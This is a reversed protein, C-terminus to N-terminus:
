RKVFRFIYHSEMSNITGNYIGSKLQKINLQIYNSNLKQYDEEYVLRGFGDFLKVNFQHNKMEPVLINIYDSAPNPYIDIESTSIQSFEESFSMKKSDFLLEIESINQTNPSLSLIGSFTSYIGAKESKLRYNGFPLNKFYFQGQFDSLTYDLIKSGDSTLLFITINSIGGDCFGNQQDNFWSQCYLQRSFSNGPANLVYGSISGIGQPIVTDVRNFKIDVDYIDSNIDMVYASNWYTKEAYYTPILGLDNITDPIANIYYKGARLKKFVFEGDPKPHTLSVANVGKIDARYAIVASAVVDQFDIINGYLQFYPEISVNITDEEIACPSYIRLYLSFSANASDNVGHFYVPNELSSNNFTGDGSTFWRISDYNAAFSNNLFLSDGSVIITDNGANLVPYDLIRVILEDKFVGNNTNVKIELRVSGNAVDIDGFTYVPSVVSNNNFVGDGDSAWLISNYGFPVSANILFLNETDTCITTDNGAYPYPAAFAFPSEHGSFMSAGDSLSDLATIAITDSFLLNSPMLYSTDSINEIKESFSYGKFNKYYVNYSKLDTEPNALWSVKVRNNVLQKKVMYPASVPDDINIDLLYPNFNIIGLDPNKIKDYILERIKQPIKTQYYNNIISVDDPIYNAIINQKDAYNLINNKEFVLGQNEIIGLIENDPESFTNFRYSNNISGSDVVISYSNQYFNNEQIICYNSQEGSFLAINNNWFINNEVLTSDYDIYLGFGVGAGTNMIVNSTIINQSSVDTGLNAVWIGNIGSDIINKEIVNDKVLGGEDRIMYLNQNFNSFYNDTIENNVSKDLVGAEISLGNYNDYFNCKTITTSSAGSIVVANNQCSFINTNSVLGYKSNQISIGNEANGISAYKIIINNDEGVNQIEIGKWKWSHGPTTYNPYLTVYNNASGNIILNGHDIIIGRSFEVKVEVGAEIYLTINNTIILDQKIIYTNGNTWIQDGNVIGGVIITEAHTLNLGFILLVLLFYKQMSRNINHSFGINSM